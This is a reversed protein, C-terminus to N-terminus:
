AATLEFAYDSGTVIKRLRVSRLECNAFVTKNVAEDGFKTVLNTLFGAHSVVAIEEEGRSWLWELFARARKDLEEEPERRDPKWLEDQDQEINSFDIGPFQIESKSRPSRQDCPMTGLKERCLELAVFPPSNASSIAPRPCRGVNDVMLPAALQDTTDTFNGGGFIGSATQLTRTLPSVVVLEVRDRLGSIRFERHLFEAQEWGTATLSADAHEYYIPMVAAPSSSPRPPAPSVICCLLLWLCRFARLFHKLTLRRWRGDLFIKWSSRMQLLIEGQVNHFAQGHRVLHLVKSDM